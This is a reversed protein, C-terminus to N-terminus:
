ARCAVFDAGQGLLRRAEEDTPVDYILLRAKREHISAVLRRLADPSTRIRAGVSHFNCTVIPTRITRPDFTGLSLESLELLVQRCNHRVSQMLSLLRSSVSNKPVGRINLALHSTAAETLSSCLKQYRELLRRSDLTSYCVDVLLVPQAEFAKECLLESTRALRLIDIEAALDDSCPQANRLAVIDSQTDADFHAIALPARGGKATMVPIQLIRCSDVMRAITKRARERAKRAAQGVRSVVLDVLDESEAVERETVEITHVDSTVGCSERIKPDISENGLIKQRIERAISEAKFAAAKEDLSAFCILFKDDDSWEFVDGSSLRRSITNEALKRVQQIRSAWRAGLAEKVEDLGVFQMQGAVVKGGTQQVQSQIRTQVSGAEGKVPGPPPATKAPADQDPTADAQEDAAQGHLSRYLKILQEEKRANMRQIQNLRAEITAFLVEFDVPKTLYDDAGLKKGVVIHKRDALASLFIFPLEALEPHNARLTQLLAHGDMVPMTIDCLVLDPKQQLITDLGQQGDAAELVEYGVDSLEDVLVQRIDAEDEICLIKTM